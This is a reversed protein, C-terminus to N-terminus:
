GIGTWGQMTTGPVTALSPDAQGLVVLAFTRRFVMFPQMACTMAYGLALFLALAMVISYGILLPSWGGASYIAYGILALLGMPILFVIGVAIMVLLSGIATVIGIVILMLVYLASQGANARIIPMVIRWGEIVKVGRVFMATVVFDRAFVDVVNAGIIVVLAALVAWVIALIQAPGFDGHFRAFAALLPAGILVALIILMALGFALTWLFYSTGLGIFRGFPKRIAYPDRTIQNLYVFRFISGLWMLALGVAFLLVCGIVILVVHEVIWGVMMRSMEAASPSDSSPFNSGGGGGGGGGGGLEALMSVLGLGLWKRMAFPRFLVRGTHNMTPTIAGGVNMAM